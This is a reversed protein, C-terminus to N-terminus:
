NITFIDIIIHRLKRLETKTDTETIYTGIINKANSTSDLICAGLLKKSGKYFRQTM